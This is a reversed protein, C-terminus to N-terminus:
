LRNIANIVVLVDLPGILGDANTDYFPPTFDRSPDLVRFGLRNINNIIVLADLPDLIGNNNADLALVPNTWRYPDSDNVSFTITNSQLSNGSAQVTASRLRQPLDNDIASVTFQTQTAGEPLDVFQPLQLIGTPTAELNIRVGGTPAPSRIGITVLTSRQDVIDEHLQNSQPAISIPQHDAVTVTLRGTPFAASSATLEVTQSGDFIADDIADVGVTVQTVGAPFVASPPLRVESPDSSALQVTLPSGALSTPRTITLVAVGAGAAESFSPKDISLALAVSSTVVMQFQQSASGGDDDTVTLNVTYTGPMAYTHSGHFYGRTPTTANGVTEIIATGSDSQGDGWQITYVFSESGFGPDTFQGIRNLITPSGSQATENSRPQFTPAVNTVAISLPVTKKGAEAGQLTISAAYTGNDGFTKAATVRVAPEILQWGIDKMAALDLRSPLLRESGVFTPVMVPRKGRFVLDNSFHSANSMPVNSGFIESSSASVGTFKDDVLKNKFSNSSGFGLVHLFEHATVSVFDLQEPTISDHNWGFFWNRGTDFAISGGWLGVDTQMTAPGLAGTQGRAQVTNAFEQSSGQLTFGGLSGIATADSIPRAGAFILIENEAITVDKLIELGTSPDRVKAQWINNAFPQIAVLTDSFRKVISDLVSEFVQRRADSQFFKSTDMSYDVRVRLPGAAPKSALTASSTTGDGWQVSASIEGILDSVDLSQDLSYSQGEATLPLRSVLPELSLKRVCSLYKKPRNERNWPSPM